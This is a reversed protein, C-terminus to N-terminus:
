ECDGDMGDISHRSRASCGSDFAYLDGALLHLASRRSHRASTVRISHNSIMGDLLDGGAM